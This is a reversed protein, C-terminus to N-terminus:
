SSFIYKQTRGSFNYKPKHEQILAFEMAELDRRTIESNSFMYKKNLLIKFTIQNDPNILRYLPLENTQEKINELHENWRIQFNRMTMGIYVLENNEYIGYIGGENMIENIRENQQREIRKQEKKHNIQFVINNNNPIMHNLIIEAYRELSYYDKRVKTKKEYFNSFQKMNLFDENQRFVELWFDSSLYKENIIYQSVETKYQKKLSSKDWVMNKEIQFNNKIIDITDLYLYCIYMNDRSAVSKEVSMIDKFENKSIM